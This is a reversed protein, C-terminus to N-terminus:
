IVVSLRNRQGGRRERVGIAIATRAATSTAPHLALAAVAPGAPAFGLADALGIALQPLMGPIVM